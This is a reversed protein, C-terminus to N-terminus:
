TSGAAASRRPSPACRTSTAARGRRGVVATLQPHLRVRQQTTTTGATDAYFKNEQVTLLSADVHSVGDAALLRGSWEALLATKEADPVDFPDVDYASVWTRDAHVPEAALEM